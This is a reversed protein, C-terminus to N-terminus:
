NASCLRLGFRGNAEGLRMEQSLNSKDRALSSPESGEPVVGGLVTAVPLIPSGAAVWIAKPISM